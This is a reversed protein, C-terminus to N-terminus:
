RRRRPLFKDETPAEEVPEEGEGEGEPNNMQERVMDMLEEEFADNAEKGGYAQEIEKPTRPKVDDDFWDDPIPM